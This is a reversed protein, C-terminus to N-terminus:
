TPSSRTGGGAWVRRTSRARSDSFAEALPAVSAGLHLGGGLPVDMDLSVARTESDGGIGRLGFRVSRGEPGSGRRVPYGELVAETLRVMARSALGLPSSGTPTEPEPEPEPEFM